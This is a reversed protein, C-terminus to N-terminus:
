RFDEADVKMMAYVGDCPIHGEDIVKRVTEASKANWECFIRVVKREDDLQGWSSVWYADLTSGSKATKAIGAVEEVTMPKPMTHVALFKAM